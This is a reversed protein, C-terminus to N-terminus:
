KPPLLRKLEDFWNRVVIIRESESSSPPDKIMLFRQGSADLAYGPTYPGDFMKAPAGVTSFSAGANVAARM